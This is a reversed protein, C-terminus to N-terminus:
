YEGSLFIFLVFFTGVARTQLDGASNQGAGTAQGGEVGTKAAEGDEV